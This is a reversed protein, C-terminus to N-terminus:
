PRQPRSTGDLCSPLPDAPSLCMHGDGPSIGSPRNFYGQALVWQKRPTHSNAAQLALAWLETHGEAGLAAAVNQSAQPNQLATVPRSKYRQLGENVDAWLM